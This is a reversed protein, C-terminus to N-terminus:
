ITKMGLDRAYEFANRLQAPDNKMYIVGGGMLILGAEEVKKRVAQREETTSKLPIHVDKLSIYRVGAERTRALADDLSLKRLTYSTIGVKLDHFPDREAKTVAASCPLPLAAATAVTVSGAVARQLFERRNFQNDM